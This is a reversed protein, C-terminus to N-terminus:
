CSPGFEQNIRKVNDLTCQLDWPLQDRGNLAGNLYMNRMVMSLRIADRERHEGRLFWLDEELGHGHVLLLVYDPKSHGQQVRVVRIPHTVELSFMLQLSDAGGSGPSSASAQQKLHDYYAMGAEISLLAPEAVAPIEPIPVLTEYPENSPEVRLPLVDDLSLLDCSRIQPHSLPLNRGLFVRCWMVGNAGVYGRGHWCNNYIGFPELPSGGLIGPHFLYDYYSQQPNNFQEDEFPDQFEYFDIASKKRALFPTKGAHHELLPTVLSLHDPLREPDSAIYAVAKWTGPFFDVAEDDDLALTVVFYEQCAADDPQFHVGPEASEFHWAHRWGWNAFGGYQEPDRDKLGGYVRDVVERVTLGQLEEYDALCVYPRGPRGLSGTFLGKPILRLALRPKFGSQLRGVLQESVMGLLMDIELDGSVQAASRQLM